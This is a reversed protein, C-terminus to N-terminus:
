HFSVEHMLGYMIPSSVNGGSPAVVLEIASSLSVFAMATAVVASKTPLLM